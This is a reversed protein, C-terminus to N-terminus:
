GVKEMMEMDSARLSELIKMQPDVALSKGLYQGSTFHPLLVYDAGAEYLAKADAEGEARAIVKPRNTYLNVAELLYLSDHIDPSTSIVLRASELHAEELTEPDSIDGFIHEIGKKKLREIAIPDFEIVLVDEVDLHRIISDGMRGAGILVVPKQHGGKARQEHLPNSREFLQLFKNLRNFVRDIHSVLYSSSIITTIATATFISVMEVSIHGLKVGVAALILTFESLQSLTIASFFSTRRRYGMFGMIVIIILPNILLVFLTAALIPKWVGIFSGTALSSGLIVFFILIFFDRLSRIRGAIQFRESSNALALGALLGAIEISFGVQSVVVAVLFVWALTLLFLLEQSRAIRDFIFPLIKRGLWLMLAFLSAGKSLAIVIGVWIAGSAADLSIGGLLVLLLIAVVDQILLVGVSIKGYLSGLDRKESLLKVVVVTSAFCLGLGFYIAPITEFGLLLGLGTGLLGSLTIQSLGLIGATKGVLKLSAYNIELGVLFLLFMIGLDAFIHFAQGEGTGFVGFFGVVAGTLLYALIIPQRLLRAAVGFAAALVVLAALEFLGSTM